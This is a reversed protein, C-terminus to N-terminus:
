VTTIFKGPFFEKLDLDADLIHLYKIILININQLIPNYLMVFRVLDTRLVKSGTKQANDCSIQSM